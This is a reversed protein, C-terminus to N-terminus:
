VTALKPKASRRKELEQRVCELVKARGPNGRFREIAALMAQAQRKDPHATLVLRACCEVCKLSYVGSLPRQKSLECQECTM